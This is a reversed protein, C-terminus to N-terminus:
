HTPTATLHLGLHCFLHRESTPNFLHGGTNMLQLSSGSEWAYTESINQHQLLNDKAQGPPCM